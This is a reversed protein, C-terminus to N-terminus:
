TVGSAGSRWNEAVVAAVFFVPLLIWPIQDSFIHAPPIATGDSYRGFQIARLGSMAGLLLVVFQPVLLASMWARKPEHHLWLMTLLAAAIGLAGAVYHGLPRLPWLSTSELAAPDVISAVSRLFDVGSVFWLLLPLRVSALADRTHM